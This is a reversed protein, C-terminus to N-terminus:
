LPKVNEWVLWGLWVAVMGVIAWGILNSPPTEPEHNM